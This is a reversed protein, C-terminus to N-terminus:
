NRQRFTDATRVPSGTVGAVITGAVVRLKVKRHGAASRLIAMAEEPSCRNEAMVVGIAQDIVARSVLAARLDANLEVQDAARLCLTM